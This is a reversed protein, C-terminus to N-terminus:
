ILGWDSQSFPVIIHADDQRPFEIAGVGDRPSSLGGRVLCVYAVWEIYIFQKKVHNADRFCNTDVFGLVM